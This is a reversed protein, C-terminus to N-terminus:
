RMESIVSLLLTEKSANVHFLADCVFVYSLFCATLVFSSVSVSYYMYLSAMSILM